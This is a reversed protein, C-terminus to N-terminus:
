TTSGGSKMAGKLMKLKVTLLSIANNYRGSNTSIKGMNIDLDVNNGDSGVTGTNDNVVSAKNFPGFGLDMHLANTRRLREASGAHLDSAWISELEGAFDLDKARFGPTESNAANSALIGHRKFTLDLVKEGLLLSKENFLKM